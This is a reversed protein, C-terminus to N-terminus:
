MQISLFNTSNTNVYTPTPSNPTISYCVGYNQYNSYGPGNWYMSGGSTASFGTISTAADTFLTPPAASTTFSIQTGYNTGVVNTAYARVYYLTGGTLGTLNSTFVGTGPIPDIVKNNAITPNSATGYCVGREIISSGGDNIVNGGSTASNDTINTAATM